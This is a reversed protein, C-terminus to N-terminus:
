GEEGHTLRWLEAPSLNLHNQIRVWVQRRGEALLMKDRDGHFTTIDAFCYPALDKLVQEGHPGAFTKKYAYQRAFLFQRARELM